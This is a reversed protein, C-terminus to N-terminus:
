AIRWPRISGYLVSHPRRRALLYLKGEM